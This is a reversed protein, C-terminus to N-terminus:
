AADHLLLVTISVKMVVTFEPIKMDAAVIADSITTIIKVIALSSNRLLLLFYDRSAWAEWVYM